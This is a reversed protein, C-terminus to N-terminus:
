TIVAQGTVLTYNVQTAQAMPYAQATQGILSIGSIYSGSIPPVLTACFFKSVPIDTIAQTGTGTWVVRLVVQLDCQFMIFGPAASSGSFTRLSLTDNSPTYSGSDINLNAVGSFNLPVNFPVQDATPALIARTLMAVFEAGTILPTQLTM